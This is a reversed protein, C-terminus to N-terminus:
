RKEAKGPNSADVFKVTNDSDKMDGLGNNGKVHSSADRYGLLWCAESTEKQNFLKDNFFKETDKKEVFKRFESTCKRYFDADKAMALLFDMYQVNREEYKKAMNEQGIGRLFSCCKEKGIKEDLFDYAQKPTVREKSLQYLRQMKDLDSIEQYKESSSAKEVNSSTLPKVEKEEVKNKRWSKYRAGHQLIM